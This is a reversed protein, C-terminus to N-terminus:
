PQVETKNNFTTRRVSLGCVRRNSDKQRKRIHRKRIHRKWHTKKQKQLIDMETNKDEDEEGGGGVLGGM